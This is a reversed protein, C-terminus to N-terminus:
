GGTIRYDIVLPTGSTYQMIKMNLWKGNTADYIDMEIRAPYSNADGNGWPTVSLGGTLDQGALRVTNGYTRSESFIDASSCNPNTITLTGATASTHYFGFTWDGHTVSHVNGDLGEDTIRGITVTEATSTASLVGNSLSLGKGINVAKVRQANGTTFLPIGEFSNPILDYAKIENGDADYLLLENFSTGTASDYLYARIKSVATTQTGSGTTTSMYEASVKGDVATQLATDAEERAAAEGDIATQLASDAAERATAEGDINTQLTTDATERNAAEASIQAQLFTDETQREAAESDINAQLASDADARAEAEAALADATAYIGGAFGLTLSEGDATATLPSKVKLRKRGTVSIVSAESIAINDGATLKDQKGAVAKQGEEIVKQLASDANARAETEATLMKELESDKEARADTEANLKALLNADATARTAAEIALAGGLDELETKVADSLSVRFIKKEASVSTSVDIEGDTGTVEVPTNVTTGSAHYPQVTWLLLGEADYVELRYAVTEDVAVVARGNSDLTIKQPNLTTTELSTYTAAADDTYALYVELHGGVLPSGGTDVFQLNPDYLYQM